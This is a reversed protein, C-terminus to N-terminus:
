VMYVHMHNLGLWEMTALAYCDDRGIYALCESEFVENDLPHPLYNTKGLINLLTNYISECVNKEIHMVDLQHRVLLYICYELDFFISTKKWCNSTNSNVNKQKKSTWKGWKNNIGKVQEWVDHGTLLKPPYCEEVENNFAKKQFWFEHNKPLFHRHGMYVNKKSYSLRCPTIDEGCASCAYYGKTM